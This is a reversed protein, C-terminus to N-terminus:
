IIWDSSLGSSDIGLIVLRQSLQDLLEIHAAVVAPHQQPLYIVGSGLMINPAAGVVSANFILSSPIPEGFSTFNEGMWAESFGIQDVLIVFERDEQLADALIWNPLHEPM